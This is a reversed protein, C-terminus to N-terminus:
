AALPLDIPTTTQSERGKNDRDRDRSIREVNWVSRPSQMASEFKPAPSHAPDCEPNQESKQDSLPWILARRTKLTWPSAFKFETKEM